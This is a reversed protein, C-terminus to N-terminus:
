RCFPWFQYFKRCKFRDECHGLQSGYKRAQQAVRKAVRRLRPKRRWAGRQYGRHGEHYALYLHEPNRESIGLRRASIHNYWGIFDLVDEMDARSKFWGGNASLYDEWAPDQIQGYGYASSSRPLPIFGLFWRRPPRVDGRFNSEQRIFAMFVPIPTGWKEESEKAYDYWEPQKEFIICLNATSVPPANACGSLLSMFFLVIFCYKISPFFIRCFTEFGM